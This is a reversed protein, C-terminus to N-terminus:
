PEEDYTITLEEGAKVERVTVLDIQVWEREPPAARGATSGRLRRRHHLQRQACGRPEAEPLVAVTREGDGIQRSGQAWLSPLAHM